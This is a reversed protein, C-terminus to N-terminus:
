QTRYSVLLSGNEDRLELSGSKLTYTYARVLARLYQQEQQMIGDPAACHKRTTAARGITIQKGKIEYAATFNNCGANGSINGNVFLATALHTTTSSVVGGGGNNIGTSQWPTNELVAPSAATFELVPQRDSDLLRLSDGNRQWTTVLPFLAFYRQEQRTVPPTCAMQTSGIRSDLTLQDAQGSTYQGFYRNCGASGGVQGKSFRANVPADSLVLIMEGSEDRYQKLQWDVDELAGGGTKVLAPSDSAATLGSAVMLLMAIIFAKM